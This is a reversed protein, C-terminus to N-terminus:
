QSFYVIQFNQFKKQPFSFINSKKHLETRRELVILVILKFFRSVQYATVAVFETESFTFTSQPCWPIQSPDATRIVHIRPQYKHMSTLVIQFLLSFFNSIM